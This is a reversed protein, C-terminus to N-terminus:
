NLWEVGKKTFAVLRIGVPIALLSSVLAMHEKGTGSALSVCVDFGSFKERLLDTLYSKMEVIPKKSDLSILEGNEPIPFDSVNESSLLIIKDWKSHHILGTVQGWNERDSGLFAVLEM